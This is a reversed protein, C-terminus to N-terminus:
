TAKPPMAHVRLRASTGFAWSRGTTWVSGPNHVPISVEMEELLEGSPGLMELVARIEQQESM